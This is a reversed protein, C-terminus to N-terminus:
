AKGKNEEKGIINEWKDVVDIWTSYKVNEVMDARIKDRRSNDDLLKIIVSLYDKKLCKEGFQVTDRLAMNPIVCPITGYMQAKIATLCYREQGICPYALIDSQRYLVDMEENTRRNGYKYTTILKADPHKIQISPWIRELFDLGRDPSSAYLCQKSIRQINGIEVKNIGPEIYDLRSYGINLVNLESKHWKSIAFMGNCLRRQTANLTTADATWLYKKDFGSIYLAAPDKFAILCGSHNHTNLYEKDYYNVVNNDSFLVDTCRGNSLSCYVTVLHGRKALERSFLVVM